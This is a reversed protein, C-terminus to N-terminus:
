YKGRELAQADTTYALPVVQVSVQRMRKREGLQKGVAVAGAVLLVLVGVSGATWKIWRKM